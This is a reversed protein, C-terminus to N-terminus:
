FLTKVVFLTSFKSRFAGFAKYLKALKMANTHWEYPRTHWEFTSTRREYTSTHWDYTVRIYKYIIRIDSTYVRIDDALCRYIVRIFEYTVELYEYTMQIDSTHSKAMFWILYLSVLFHKENTEKSNICILLLVSLTHGLILSTLCAILHNALPIINYLFFTIQCNYLLLEVSVIVSLHEVFIAIRFFIQEATAVTVRSRHYFSRSKMSIIWPVM